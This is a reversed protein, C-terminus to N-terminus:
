WDKDSRYFGQHNKKKKGKNEKLNQLILDAQKKTLKEPHKQPKQQKKEKNDNQKDQKKNTQKDKEQNKGDKKDKKDNNNKNEKNKDEKKNNQNRKCQNKQNKEQELVLEYAEYAEQDNPNHEIAKLYYEKAAELDNARLSSTAMNYFVKSKEINDFSEKELSLFSEIAKKYEGLQYYVNGINFKLKPNNPKDVQAESYKRLAKEYQKKDYAKQAIDIPSNVMEAYSFAPIFINFLIVIIILRIYIM